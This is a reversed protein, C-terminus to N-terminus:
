LAIVSNPGLLLPGCYKVIGGLNTLKIKRIGESELLIYKGKNRRERDLM